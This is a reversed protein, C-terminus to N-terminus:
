EAKNSSSYSIQEKTNHNGPTLLHHSTCTTLFGLVGVSGQLKGPVSPKVALRILSLLCCVLVLCSVSFVQSTSTRSKKSCSWKPMKTQPPSQHLDHPLRRSTSSLEWCVLKGEFM